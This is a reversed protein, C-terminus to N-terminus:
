RKIEIEIYNEEYLNPLAKSVATQSVKLMKAIQRKNLERGSEVFLLRLIEQQLNTWKVKYIEVM